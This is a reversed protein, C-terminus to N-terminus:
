KWTFSSVIKQYDALKATFDQDAPNSDPITIKFVKGDKLGYIETVTYNDKPIQAIAVIPQQALTGSQVKDQPLNNDKVYTALDSGYNEAVLEIEVPLSGEVASKITVKNGDESVTWDEPYKVGWLASSYDKTPKDPPTMSPATVEKMWQWSNLIANFYPIAAERSGGFSSATIMIMEENVPMYITSQIDNPNNQTNDQLLMLGIVPKFIAQQAATADIQKEKLFDAATLKNPNPSRRIEVKAGQAPQPQQADYSYLIVAGNKEEGFWNDPIQVQWLKDASQYPVFKVQDQQPQQAANDINAGDSVQAQKSKLLGSQDLYVFGGVLLVVIILIIVLTTMSIFGAKQM